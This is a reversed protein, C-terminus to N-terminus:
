QARVPLTLGQRGYQAVTNQLNLEALKGLGSAELGDATSFEEEFARQQAQCMLLYIDPAQTSLWNTSTTKLAPLSGFYVVDFTQSAGNKITLFDGSLAYKYPVSGLYVSRMGLFDIPLAVKGDADTTFTTTIERRYGVLARRIQAEANDIFEDLQADDYERESWSQISTKLSSYDM